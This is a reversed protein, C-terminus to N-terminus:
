WNSWAKQDTLDTQMNEARVMVETQEETM